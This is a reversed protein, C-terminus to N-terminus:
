ECCQRNFCRRLVYSRLLSVVTFAAGIKLNDAVTTNFGFLPLVVANTAVSIFYGVAVNAVSEMLSMRKSQM